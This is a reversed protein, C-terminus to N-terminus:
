IVLFKYFQSFVQLDKSNMRRENETMTGYKSYMENKLKRQESLIENYNRQM